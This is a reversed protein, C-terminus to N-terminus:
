PKIVEFIIRDLKNNIREFKVNQSQVKKDVRLILENHSIEKAKLMAINEVAQVVTVGLWSLFPLLLLVFAGKHVFANQHIPKRYKPKLKKTPM